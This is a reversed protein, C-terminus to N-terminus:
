QNWETSVLFSAYILPHIRLKAVPSVARLSKSPWKLDMFGLM